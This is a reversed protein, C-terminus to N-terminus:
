LLKKIIIEQNIPFSLNLYLYRKVNNALKKLFGAEGENWEGPIREYIRFYVDVNERLIKNISKENIFQISNLFSVPRGSFFLFIKSVLKGLFLPLYMKYHGEIINRYDPTNIYIIGGPKLVRFMERIALEVHQVHELVTYCHVMDVSSDKFPLSEAVANKINNYDLGSCEAKEKCILFAEQNPECGFVKTVGMNNLVILLGGTGAGVILHSEFDEMKISLIKELRKCRSFDAEEESLRIMAREEFDELGVEQYRKRYYILIKEKLEKSYDPILAKSM